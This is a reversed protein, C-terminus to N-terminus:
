QWRVTVRWGIQRFCTDIVEQAHHRSKDILEENAATAVLNQQAEAYALNAAETRWADGPVICWWGLSPSAQRHSDRM